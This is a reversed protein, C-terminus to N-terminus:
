KKIKLVSFNNFNTSLGKLVGTLNKVDREVKCLHAYMGKWDEANIKDHCDKCIPILINKKPSLHKPLAHHTTVKKDSDCIWCNDQSVSIIM